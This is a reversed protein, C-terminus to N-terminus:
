EIAEISEARIGGGRQTPKGDPGTPYQEMPNAPQYPRYPVPEGRVRVKRGVMAQLADVTVQESPRVITTEGGETEVVFYEMGGANWSELTKSWPKKVLTGVVASQSEPEPPPSPVPPPAPDASEAQPNSSAPLTSM